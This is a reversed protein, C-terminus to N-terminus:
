EKRTIELDLAILPNQGQGEEIHLAKVEVNVDQISALAERILCSYNVDSHTLPPKPIVPEPVEVEPRKMGKPLTEFDTM